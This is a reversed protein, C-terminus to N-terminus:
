VRTSYSTSSLQSVKLLKRDLLSNDSISSQNNSTPSQVGSDATDSSDSQEPELALNDYVQLTITDNSAISRELDNSILADPKAETDIESNVHITAGTFGKSVVPTGKNEANPRELKPIDSHVTIGNSDIGNDQSMEFYAPNSNGQTSDNTNNNSVSNNTSANSPSYHFSNYTPPTIHTRFTSSNNLKLDTSIAIETSDTDTTNSFSNPQSANYVDYSQARGALFM